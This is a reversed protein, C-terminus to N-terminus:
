IISEVPSAWSHDQSACRVPRSISGSTKMSWRSTPPKALDPRELAGAGEPMHHPALHLSGEHQAFEDQRHGEPPGPLSSRPSEVCAGRLRWLLCPGSLSISM